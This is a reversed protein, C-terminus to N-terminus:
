SFKFFFLPDITKNEVTVYDAVLADKTLEISFNEGHVLTMQIAGVYGNADMSVINDNNYIVLM